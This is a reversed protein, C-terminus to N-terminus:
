FANGLFPLMHGFFLVGVWLVLASGAALKATMPADDRDGISWPEDLLMFYLINFAALVVFLIKWYFVGNKTYQEPAGLFFFMGTVLNTMFGLMGLPLLQYLAAFSLGKAMGLIRLDVLLLVTFLISLGVFHLTECAPWVWTHGTVYAGVRRAFGQVEGEAAAPQSAHPSAVIESHRIEGGLNAARAMTAFTLISLLLVAAVSWGPMKSIIRYQWLGIWAIFGTLVMFAFGWLAADEHERVSAVSVGPPCENQPCLTEFAANGSQYTPIALAAIIFFIVFSTRKLDENKGVLAVLFIALGIGFGITPFHNLLLHIHALNITM